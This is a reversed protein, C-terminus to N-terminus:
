GSCGSTSTFPASQAASADDAAFDDFRAAAADDPDGEGLAIGRRRYYLLYLPELSSAEPEYAQRIGVDVERLRWASRLVAAARVPM